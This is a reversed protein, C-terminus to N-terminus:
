RRKRSACQSRSTRATTNVAAPSRCKQVPASRETGCGCARFRLGRLRGVADDADAMLMIRAPKWCSICAIWSQSFGTMTASFPVAAPRRRRHEHEGGVEDDRGVVGLEDLHEHAAAENGVTTDRVQQGADDAHVLRLLEHEEAVVEGRGVRGVSPM